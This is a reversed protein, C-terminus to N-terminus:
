KLSRGGSSQQAAQWSRLTGEEGKAQSSDAPGEECGVQVRGGLLESVQKGEKFSVRM